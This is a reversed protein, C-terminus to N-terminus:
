GMIQWLSMLLRLKRKEPRAYCNERSCIRGIQIPGNVTSMYLGTWSHGYIDCLPTESLKKM